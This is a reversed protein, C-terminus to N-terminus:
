LEPSHRRPGGADRLKAQFQEPLGHMQHFMAEPNLLRFPPGALVIADAESSAIREFRCNTLEM